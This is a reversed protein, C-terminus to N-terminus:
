IVDIVTPIDYTYYNVPGGAYSLALVIHAHWQDGHEWKRKAKVQVNVQRKQGPGLTVTGSGKSSGMPSIRVSQLPQLEGDPAWYVATITVQTVGAVPFVDATRLTFSRDFVYTTNSDPYAGWEISLGADAGGAVFPLSPSNHQRAYGPKDASTPDTESSYLSLWDTISDTSAAISVESSTSFSAGSFSTSASVAAFAALALLLMLPRWRM